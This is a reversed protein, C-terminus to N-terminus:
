KMRADLANPIKALARKVTEPSVSAGIEETLRAIQSAAGREQHPIASYDCLAAIITLLSNRETASLPKEPNPAAADEGNPMGPIVGMRRWTERLVAQGRAKKKEEYSLGTPKDYWMLEYAQLNEWGIFLNNAWSPPESFRLDSVSGEANLRRVFDYDEDGRRAVRYSGNEDKIFFLLGEMDEYWIWRCVATSLQEVLASKWNDSPYISSLAFEEIGIQALTKFDWPEKARRAIEGSSLILEVLPASYKDEKAAILKQMPFGVRAAHELITEQQKAM